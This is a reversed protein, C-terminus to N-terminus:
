DRRALPAHTSIIYGFEIHQDLSDRRALPAHTSIASTHSFLRKDRRAERSARSYFDTQMAAANSAKPRAERSARSYFYDEHEVEWMVNLDRRALPAHTSINNQSFSLITPILRAERSARSYFYHLWIRYASRFLRAERSARSYFHAM